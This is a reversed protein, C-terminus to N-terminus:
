EVSKRWFPTSEAATLVVKTLMWNQSQVQFSVLCVAGRDIEYTGSSKKNARRRSKARPGHIKSSSKPGDKSDFNMMSYHAPMSKLQRGM